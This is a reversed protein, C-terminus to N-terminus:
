TDPLLAPRMAACPQTPITLRYHRPIGGSVMFLAPYEGPAAGPAAPVPSNTLVLAQLRFFLRNSSMTILNTLWGGGVPAELPRSFPQWDSLTVSSELQWGYNTSAAWRLELQNNVLGSGFLRGPDSSPQADTGRVLAACALCALFRIVAPLM